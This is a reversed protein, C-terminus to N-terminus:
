LVERQVKFHDGEEIKRMDATSQQGTKETGRDGSAIVRLPLLLKLPTLFLDLRLRRGDGFALLLKGSFALENGLGFGVDGCTLGGDRCSL